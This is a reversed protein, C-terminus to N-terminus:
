KDRARSRAQLVMQKWGAGAAEFRQRREDKERRKRLKDKLLYAKYKEDNTLKAILRHLRRKWPSSPMASCDCCLSDISSLRQALDSRYSSSYAIHTSHTSVDVLERYVARGTEIVISCRPM